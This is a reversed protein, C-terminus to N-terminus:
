AQASWPPWCAARPGTTDAKARIVQGSATDLAVLDTFTGGIDVAVQIPLGDAVTV